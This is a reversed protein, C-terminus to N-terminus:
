RTALASARDGFQHDPRQVDAAILWGGSTRGASGPERPEQADGPDGHDSDVREPAQTGAWDVHTRLDALVRYVTDPSASSPVSAAFQLM